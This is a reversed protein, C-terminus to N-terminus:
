SDPFEGGECVFEVAWPNCDSAAAVVHCGYGSCPGHVERCHGVEFERVGDWLGEGREGSEGGEVVWAFVADVRVDTVVDDVVVVRRYGFDFM